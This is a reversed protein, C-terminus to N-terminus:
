LGNFVRDYDCSCVTCQGHMNAMRRLPIMKGRDKLCAICHPFEKEPGEKYFYAEGRREVKDRLDAELKMERMEDSLRHNEEILASIQLHLESIKSQLDNRVELDAVNKALGFLEKVDGILSM